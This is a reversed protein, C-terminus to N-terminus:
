VDEEVMNEVPVLRSKGMAYYVKACKVTKYPRKGIYHYQQWGDEYFDVFLVKEVTVDMIGVVVASFPKNNQVVEYYTKIVDDEGCCPSLYEPPIKEKDAVFGDQAFGDQWDGMGMILFDQSNRDKHLFYEESKEGYKDITLIKEIHKGDKVKRLYASCNVRDGLRIKREM